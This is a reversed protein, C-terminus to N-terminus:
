LRYASYKKDGAGTIEFNKSKVAISKRAFGKLNVSVTASSPEGDVPFVNSPLSIDVILETNEKISKEDLSTIDISEIGALVVPDGKVRISKPEISLDVYKEDYYGYKTSVNLPLEKYGFVPINVQATSKSLKIFRSEINDGYQNKLVISGSTAISETLHNGGMDVEVLAYDIDKLMSEPGTVM